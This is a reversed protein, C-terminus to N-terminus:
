GDGSERLKMAEDLCAKAAASLDISALSDGNEHAIKAMRMMRDAEKLWGRFDSPNQFGPASAGKADGM